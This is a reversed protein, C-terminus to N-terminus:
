SLFYSLSNKFYVYMEDSEDLQYEKVLANIRERPHPHQRYLVPQKKIKEWLRDLHLFIEFLFLPAYYFKHRCFAYYVSDDTTNLLRDFLKYAYKDAEFECEISRTDVAVTVNKGNGSFSKLQIGTTHKLIHHAMEHAIVFAKLSHFLYNSFEAMEYDKKMLQLIVGVKDIDIKERNIYNSVVLEDVFKKIEEREEKNEIVDMSDFVIVNCIFFFFQFLRDDILIIYGDKATLAHANYEDLVFLCGHINLEKNEIKEGLKILEYFFGNEHKDHEGAILNIDPREIGSREWETWLDKAINMATSTPAIIDYKTRFDLLAEQYTQKYIFM